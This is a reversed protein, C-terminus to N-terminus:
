NYKKKHSKGKGKNPLHDDSSRAHSAARTRKLRGGLDLFEKLDELTYKERHEGWVERDEDENLGDQDLWEVMEPYNKRVAGFYNKQNYWASKSIFVEVILVENFAPLESPWSGAKFTTQAQEIAKTIALYHGWCFRIGTKSRNTFFIDIGLEEVLRDRLTSSM